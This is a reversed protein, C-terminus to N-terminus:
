AEDAAREYLLHVLKMLDKGRIVVLDLHDLNQHNNSTTANQILGADYASESIVAAAGSRYLYPHDSPNQFRQVIQAEQRQGSQLLRRKTANLTIARRLCDKSSHDIATQLCGSYTGDSCQAKVEFALLTDSPAASGASKLHFGLIDVGKVSEDRSAKEAYKQRPVWYGLLYEVYDAVLLEAFDGARVAPGPPASADPFILQRLFENRSLGTGARLADIETDPCYNQRFLAAWESLQETAIETHLEWVDITRGDLTKLSEASKSLCSLHRPTPKTTANAAGPPVPPNNSTPLSQSETLAHPVIERTTPSYCLLLM